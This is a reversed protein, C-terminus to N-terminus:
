ITTDGLIVKEIKGKLTMGEYISYDCNTQLEKYSIKYKKEPNYIVLSAKIGKKIVGYEPYLNFIKAPNLAVWRVVDEIKFGRKRAESLMVPYLTEIGALGYPIKLFNNKGNDKQKRM